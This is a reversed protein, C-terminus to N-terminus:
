RSAVVVFSTACGAFVGQAEHPTAIENWRNRVRGHEDLPRGCNGHEGWGWALVSGSTTLALCHESGAALTAVPPLGDPPLQGYDNRGWAVLSGDNMLVFISSWCAVIEVWGQISRPAEAVLGFRDNDNPGLMMIAGTDPKGVVCTFDKGCVADVAFFDVEEIRRPTWVDKVVGGLQGKRGKGWGWVEGNSLVAVTHSVSSRIREVKARSNPFAVPQQKKTLTVGEGLGLEGHQGSGCALIRGDRVFFGASWTASVDEYRDQLMSAAGKPPQSGTVQGADGIGDLGCRGDEDNGMAYVSGTECLVLTHNGGATIRRIRDPFDTAGSGQSGVSVIAPTAVDDQHGIGLQGSGNSGFALLMRTNFSM